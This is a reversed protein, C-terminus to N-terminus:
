GREAFFVKLIFISGFPPTSGGCGQPYQVRFGARRGFEAVEAVEKIIYIGKKLEIASKKM